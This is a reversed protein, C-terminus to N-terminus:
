FHSFSLFEVKRSRPRARRRPRHMHLGLDQEDENEDEILLFLIQVLNFFSQGLALGYNLENTTAASCFKM